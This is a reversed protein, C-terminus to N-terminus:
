HKKDQIWVDNLAYRECAWIQKYACVLKSLLVSMMLHMKSVLTYFSRWGAEGASCCQKYSLHLWYQSVWVHFWRCHVIDQGSETPWTNLDYRVLLTHLALKYSNLNLYVKGNCRCTGWQKFCMNSLVGTHYGGTRTCQIFCYTTAIHIVTTAIHM